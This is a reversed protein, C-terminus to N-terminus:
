LDCDVQFHACVDAEYGSRWVGVHSWLQVICLVNQINICLLSGTKKVRKNQLVSPVQYPHSLVCMWLTELASEGLQHVTDAGNWWEKM